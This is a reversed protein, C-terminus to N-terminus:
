EQELEYLIMAVAAPGATETRLIAAGLSVSVAGAAVLAEAEETSFGGEPGVILALGEPKAPLGRLCSKLSRERECEYPFLMLDFARMASLAADFALVPHVGPTLGRRCQKAAEAAIRRWRALKHDSVAEGAAVSRVCAVPFVDAVGLEVSKQIITEMKAGKPLGQFLALRVGPERAFRQRDLIRLVATGDRAHLFEAEYEWEASDSVEVRTGRVARLVRTLHKVDRSSVIRIENGAIQSADVFFRSM